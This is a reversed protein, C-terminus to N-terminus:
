VLFGLSDHISRQLDIQYNQIDRLTYRLREWRIFSENKHLRVRLRNEMRKKAEAMLDDFHDMVAQQYAEKFQRILTIAADEDQFDQKAIQRCVSAAVFGLSILGCLSVAVSMSATTTPVGLAKLLAPVTNITGDVADMGFVLAAGRVISGPPFKVKELQEALEGSPREVLMQGNHNKVVMQSLVLSEALREMAIIPILKVSEEMLERSNEGNVPEDSFFGNLNDIIDQRVVMEATSEQKGTAEREEKSALLRNARAQKVSFDRLYDSILVHFRRACKLGIYFREGSEKDEALSSPNDNNLEVRPKEWAGQVHRTFELHGQYSKGLIFEKVKTLGGKSAIMDQIEHVATSQHSSLLQNLAREVSIRFSRVAQDYFQLHKRYDQEEEAENRMDYRDLETQLRALVATFSTMLRDIHNVQNRRFERPIAAYKRVADMLEGIWTKGFEEGTGKLVVRDSEHEPIGFHKLVLGKLQANDEPSREDSSSLAFIPKAAKFDKVVSDLLTRNQGQALKARDFVMICTAALTLAHRVFDQWEQDRGELDEIGPLLAFCQDPSYFYRYPVKLELWMDHEGPQRSIEMFQSSPIPIERLEFDYSGEVPEARRVYTHIEEVSHETVLIPLKEGRGINEPIYGSPIDYLQKLLTTKGVGQMGAIAIIYKDHFLEAIATQRYYTLLDSLIGSRGTESQIVTSASLLARIRRNLGRLGTEPTFGINEVVTLEDMGKM